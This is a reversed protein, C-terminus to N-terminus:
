KAIRHILILTDLTNLVESMRGKVDKSGGFNKKPSLRCMVEDYRALCRIEVYFFFKEGSPWVVNFFRKYAIMQAGVIHRLFIKWCNKELRLSQHAM